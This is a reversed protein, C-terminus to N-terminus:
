AMSASGDYQSERHVHCHHLRPPNMKHQPVGRDVSVDGECVDHGTSHESTDGKPDELVIRGDPVRGSNMSCQFDM